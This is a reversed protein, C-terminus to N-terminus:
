TPRNDCLTRLATLDEADLLAQEEGCRPCPMSPVETTPLDIYWRQKNRQRNQSRHQTLHKTSRESLREPLLVRQIYPLCRDTPFYFYALCERCRQAGDPDRKGCLIRASRPSGDEYLHWREPQELRAQVDM